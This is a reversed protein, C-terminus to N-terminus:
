TKHIKKNVAALKAMNKALSSNTDALFVQGALSLTIQALGAKIPGQYHELM